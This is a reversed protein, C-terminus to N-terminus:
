WQSNIFSFIYKFFGSKYSEDKMFLNSVPPDLQRQQYNKNNDDVKSTPRPITRGLNTTDSSAALYLSQIAGGWSSNAICMLVGLFGLFQALFQLSYSQLPVGLLFFVALQEIFHRSFQLLKFPCKM